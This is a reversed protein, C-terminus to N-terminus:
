LAMKASVSTQKVMMALPVIDPQIPCVGGSM